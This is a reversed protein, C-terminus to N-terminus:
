SPRAVMAKSNSCMKVRLPTRAQFFIALGQDVVEGSVDHFSRLSAHRPTLDSSLVVAMVHRVGVGSVRVVGVAGPTTATAIAVITDSSM